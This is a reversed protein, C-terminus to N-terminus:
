KFFEEYVSSSREKSAQIANQIQEQSLPSGGSRHFGILNGRESCVITIPSSGLECERSTPDLLLMGGFEGWTTSVPCMKLSVPNARQTMDVEKVGEENRTVSPLTLNQIASVISLLAADIVNGDDELCYLDFFLTWALQDEEICLEKNDMVQKVINDLFISLSQAIENPAGSKAAPASVPSFEFNIACIGEDPTAALPQVLEGTIGCIVKTKGLRVLVSSDATQVVNKALVIPRLEDLARGDPRTNEELFSRLHDEPCLDSIQKSLQEVSIM